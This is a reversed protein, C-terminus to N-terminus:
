ASAKQEVFKPQETWKAITDKLDMMSRKPAVKFMRTYERSFQSASEYGVRYAADAVSLAEAVMLRRAELLRLNKQYQLPTMSTLAKFHQHFSSASMGAAEALREVRLTETYNEQMLGISRSIREMHTDPLAVKCVEGGYPGTLLWYYIERMVLPYLIPVAQPTDALRLLRQICDTLADDVKSVFVSLGTGPTPVPPNELQELVERIMAVDFDITIGLFPVGPSAEVIRGCAPLEMNVILCQMPGYELVEEGILIQKTGQLVLCMSPRYLQHNAMMRYFSRLIHVGGMATQFYGEGVGRADAIATASELLSAMAGRTQDRM